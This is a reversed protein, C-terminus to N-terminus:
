VKKISGAPIGWVKGDVLVSVTNAPREESPYDSLAIGMEGESIYTKFKQASTISSIIRILDGKKIKQM